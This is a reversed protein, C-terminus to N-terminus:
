YRLCQSGGGAHGKGADAAHIGRVKGSRRYRDARTGEACVPVKCAHQGSDADQFHTLLPTMMMGFLLLLNAFLIGIFMVLYGSRNQLIIRLRFRNFFKWRRLRVAKKRGRKELDRRLFRLPSLRLKRSIIWINVALMILLPVVTTLLFAQANWRTEYTPLSYSGYYMGACVDKFVTYGLVNGILAAVVTVLLPLKLYHILLERRTYGTARLTGIVAAERVITNSTTVAFIFAMLAILIYLLVIMMSRDSGMDDGTFRIAQSQCRPIFSRVMGCAAVKKVLEEARDMEETEDKPETQYKWAYAYHLHAPDLTDLGEETMVGVGFKVADFMMDGNDSFLASYDSLAVLGTIKLNQGDM